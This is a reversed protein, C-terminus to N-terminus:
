SNPYNKFFEEEEEPSTSKTTYQWNAAEIRCLMAEEKVSLPPLCVLPGLADCIQQLPHKSPNMLKKTMVPMHSAQFAPRHDIETM